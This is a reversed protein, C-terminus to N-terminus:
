SLRVVFDNLEWRESYGRHVRQERRNKKNVRVSITMM